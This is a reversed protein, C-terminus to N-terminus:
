EAYKWIFGGTTKIRGKCCNVILSAYTGTVEAAEKISIYQQIFRNDKTYQCVPKTKGKSRITKMRAVRDEKPETLKANRMHVITLPNNVNEKRTVWRLNCPRNDMPDTNIHDIEAGEFYENQILEPYTLAIWRAAQYCIMKGNLILRWYLRGERKEPNNSLERVKGTNRYNLNRCKGEKTSISIEYQGEYGPVERWEESM